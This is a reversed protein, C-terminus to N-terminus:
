ASVPRVIRSTRITEEAAAAASRIVFDTVSRGEIAAAQQILVKQGASNRAELREPKAPMRAM